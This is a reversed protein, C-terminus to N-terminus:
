KGMDVLKVKLVTIRADHKDLGAKVVEDSVACFYSGSGTDVYDAYKIYYKFDNTIETADVEVIKTYTQVSLECEGDSCYGAHKSVEEKFTIMISIRM